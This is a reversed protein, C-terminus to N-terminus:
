DVLLGVGLITLLIAGIIPVAIGVGIVIILGIIRTM